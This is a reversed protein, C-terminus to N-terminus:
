ALDTMVQALVSGWDGARNQRRLYVSDYWPSDTRRLMWRWDPVASLLV